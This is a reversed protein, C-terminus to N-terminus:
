KPMEEGRKHKTEVIRWSPKDKTWKEEVVTEHVTGVTDLHWTYRVQVIAEEHGESLTVRMVEYEDIRLNKDIVDRRDLFSAREDPAVYDAAQEYRRWRLGEQYGRINNLLDENAKQGAGCACLLLLAILRMVLRM